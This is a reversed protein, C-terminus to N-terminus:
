CIDIFILRCFKIKYISKLNLCVAVNGGTFILSFKRKISSVLRGQTGRLNRCCRVRGGCDCPLKQDADDGELHARLGQRQVRHGFIPFVNETTEM